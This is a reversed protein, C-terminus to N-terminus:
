ASGEEQDLLKWPERHLNTRLAFLFRDIDSRDKDSLRKDGNRIELIRAEVAELRGQWGTGSQLRPDSARISWGLGVLVASVCNESFDSM